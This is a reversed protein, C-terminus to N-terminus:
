LELIFDVNVLLFLSRIPEQQVIQIHAQPLRHSFDGSWLGQRLLTSKM